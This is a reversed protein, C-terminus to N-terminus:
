GDGLRALEGEDLDDNKNHASIEPDKKIDKEAAKLAEANVKKQTKSVEGPLPHEHSGKQKKDQMIGIESYFSLIQAM